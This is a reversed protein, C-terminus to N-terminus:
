WSGLITFDTASDQRHQSSFMEKVRREVLQLLDPEENYEVTILYADHFSKTSLSPRRDIRLVTLHQLASLIDQITVGPRRQSPVSVRFIATRLHTTEPQRFPTISTIDKPSLIIFRTFNDEGDQINEKLAELGPYLKLCITSCVAAYDGNSKELVRRAAAATSDTRDLLADPMNTKLFSSCQGLAQEHSGIVRIGEMTTGQRVLLAHSIKLTVEGQIHFEKGLLPSRLLDLTEVVSGHISNEIPILAIESTKGVNNFTDAITKFPVYHVSDGFLEYAAQHTYTGEPGLYGVAPKTEGCNGKLNVHSAAM